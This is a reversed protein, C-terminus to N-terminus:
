AKMEQKTKNVFVIENDFLDQKNVLTLAKRLIKLQGPFLELGGISDSEIAAFGTVRRSWNLKSKPDYIISISFRGLILVKVGGNDRLTVQYDDTVFTKM